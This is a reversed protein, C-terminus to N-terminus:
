RPVTVVVPRGFGSLDLQPLATFSPQVLQTILRRIRRLSDVWLDVTLSPRYRRLNVVATYHTTKMGDVRDTGVLKVSRIASLYGLLSAGRGSYRSWPEASGRRKALYPSRVYLTRGIVV